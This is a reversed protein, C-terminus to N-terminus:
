YFIERLKGDGYKKVGPVRTWDKREVLLLELIGVAARRMIQVVFRVAQRASIL